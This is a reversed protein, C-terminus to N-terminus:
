VGEFEPAHHSQLDELSLKLRTAVERTVTERHHYHNFGTTHKQTSIGDHAPLPTQGGPPRPLALPAVGTLRQAVLSHLIDEGNWYPIGRRGIDEMEPAQQITALCYRRDTLLVQTTCIPVREPPDIRPAYYSVKGPEDQNVAHRADYCTILDPLRMKASVLREIAEESLLQDDDQLVVWENRALLCGKFRGLLGWKAMFHTEPSNILTLSETWAIDPVNDPHNNWVIFEDVNRYDSMKSALLKVNEPRMYNMVVLSIKPRPSTVSANGYTDAVDHGLVDDFKAGASDPQGHEGRHVGGARQAAAASVSLYVTCAQWLHTILSNM